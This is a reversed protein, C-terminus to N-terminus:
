NIVLLCSCGEVAESQSQCLAVSLVYVLRIGTLCIYPIFRLFEVNLFIYQGMRCLCM